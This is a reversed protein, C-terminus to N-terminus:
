LRKDRDSNLHQEHMAKLQDLKSKMGDLKASAKDRDVLTSNRERRLGGIKNLLDRRSAQRQFKQRKERILQQSFKSDQTLFGPPKNVLEDSPEPSHLYQKVQKNLQNFLETQQKNLQSFLKTQKEDESQAAKHSPSQRLNIYTTMNGTQAKRVADTDKVKRAVAGLFQIKKSDTKPKDPKEHPVKSEDAFTKDDDVLGTERLLETLQENDEEIVAMVENLIKEELSADFEQQSVTIERDLEELENSAIM